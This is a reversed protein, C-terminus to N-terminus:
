RKTERNDPENAFVWNRAFPEYGVRLDKHKSDLYTLIEDFASVGNPQLLFVLYEKSPNLGRLYKALAPAVAPSTADSKRPPAAKKPAGSKANQEAKIVPFVQKSPQIVYGV